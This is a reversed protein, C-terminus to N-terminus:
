KALEKQMKEKAIKALYELITRYKELYKEKTLDTIEEKLFEFYSKDSVGNSSYFDNLIKNVTSLLRNLEVETIKKSDVYSKHFQNKLEKIIGDSLTEIESSSIEITYYGEEINETKWALVFVEKFVLAASILPVAKQFENQELIFEHLTKLMEPMNNDISVNCLFEKHLFDITIPPKEWCIEQSNPILYIEGFRNIQTFYDKKNLAIRLNRLIKGLSPDAESYLRILNNHIKGFILQRLRTFVYEDSLKDLNPCNNEFFNILVTFNGKEDRTFIDAICDFVVDNEKM